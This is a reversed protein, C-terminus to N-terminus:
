NALKLYYVNKSGPAKHGANCLKNFSVTALLRKAQTSQEASTGIIFLERKGKIAVIGTPTARYETGNTLKNM